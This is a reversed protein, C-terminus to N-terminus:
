SGYDSWFPTRSVGSIPLDFAICSPLILRRKRLMPQYPNPIFLALLRLMCCCRRLASMLLRM